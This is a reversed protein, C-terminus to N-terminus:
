TIREAKGEEIKEVRTKMDIDNWKVKKELDDIREILKDINNQADEVRDNLNTLQGELSNVIRDLSEQLNLSRQTLLANPYVEETM